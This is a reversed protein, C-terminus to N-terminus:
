GQISEDNGRNKTRRIADSQAEIIKHEVLLAVKLWKFRADPENKYSRELELSLNKMSEQELLDEQNM